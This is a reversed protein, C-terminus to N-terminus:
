DFSLMKNKEDFTIVFRTFIGQRGLLNYPSVTAEVFIAPAKFTKGAISMTVIQHYGQVSGGVGSLEVLQHNQLRIGLDKAVNSHFISISAGSDILVQEHVRLLGYALKVPIIPYLHGDALKQYEYQM